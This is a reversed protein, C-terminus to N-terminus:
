KERRSDPDPQPNPLKQRLERMAALRDKVLPDDPNAAAVQQMQWIAEDLNGARALANALNFRVRASDPELRLAAQFQAIAEGLRGLRDLSLGLMNRADTRGPQLRVAAQLRSEAGQADLRALMLAGLNLNTSFDDPYKELRHRLVAEQLERRRDGGRPLVQLWLHGMEDTSQNGARIRKPPHNPNRRNNESNDYHYRISIVSGKPLFVPLSYHFVAQWDPNWRSIRILWKRERGPLTAYGELLKGLYHAHPYVSLVDADMPLRFNDSVVFDANGAPIDLAADHELQILIPFKQQPQDTFYLGISPRLQTTMGMGHLHLNLVLDDGPDLRWALGDPEVHPISGPKWFLFHGDDPDFPSREIVPDMGPFGMGPATEQRRASRTRDVLMNAHHVMNKDGPRIEFARVWRTKKLEPTLIVNWFVDRGSAPIDLPRPPEVVLDPIGLQWDSTFHPLPPADSISGEPTGEAVWDALRQIEADDLRCKELFSGYGPDPLCPPMSRRRVSDVIQRSYAKVDGYRMLSHPAPGDPRHCSACSRYIIPAIDKTFTLDAAHAPLLFILPAAAWTCNAVWHWCVSGFDNGGSMGM